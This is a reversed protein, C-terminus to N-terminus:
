QRFAVTEAEYEAVSASIRDDWAGPQALAPSGGILLLVLGVGSFRSKGKRSIRLVAAPNLTFRV